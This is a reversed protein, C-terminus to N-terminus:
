YHGLTIRVSEVPQHLRFVHVSSRFPSTTSRLPNARVHDSEINTPNRVPQRLPGPAEQRHGRARLRVGCDLNTNQGREGLHRLVGQYSSATQDVQIVVRSALAAM